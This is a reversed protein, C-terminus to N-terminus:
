QDMEKEYEKQRQIRYRSLLVEPTKVYFYEWNSSVVLNSPHIFGDNIKKNYMLKIRYRGSDICELSSLSDYIVKESLKVYEIKKTHMGYVPITIYECIYRSFEGSSDQREVIYILDALERTENGVRYDKPFQFFNHDKRQLEIKILCDYIDSITDKELRINIKNLHQSYSKSNVTSVIILLTLFLFKM